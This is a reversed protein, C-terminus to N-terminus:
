GVIVIERAVLSPIPQEFTKMSDLAGPSPPAGERRHNGFRAAFAELSDFWAQPIGDFAPADTTGYTEPLAHSQVYRRMGGWEAVVLEAHVGRWHEQFQEVTSGKKRTLFGAYKVMSERARPSLGDEVIPVETALLSKTHGFVKPGDDRVAQWEPTARAARYAELSDFWLEAIGDVPPPQANGYSELLPHSQVYRRLGPTRAAIPGHVDLWYKRFDEVSLGDRRTLAAMLKIV